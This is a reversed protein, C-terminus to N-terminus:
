AARPAISRSHSSLASARNEAGVARHRKKPAPESSCAAALPVLLVPTFPLVLLLALGMTGLLISLAVPAVLAWGLWVGLTRVWDPANSPAADAAAAADVDHQVDQSPRASMNMHLTEM